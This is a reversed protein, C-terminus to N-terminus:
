RLQELGELLAGLGIRQEPEQALGRELLATLPTAPPAPQRRQGLLVSLKEEDAAAGDFPHEGTAWQFGIACLAFVDAAPTERGSMTLEPAAYHHRFLPVPAMHSDEASRLFEDTRPLLATVRGGDAYILEPHLSGIMRRGMTHARLAIAGVELCLRRADAPLRVAGLAAGAPEDEVMVDRYVREAELPGVHRLEGVGELSYSLREVLEAHEFKQPMSVTVITNRFAWQSVARYIGRSADGHLHEVIIYAGEAVAAGIPFPAGSM